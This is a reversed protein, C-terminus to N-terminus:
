LASRYPTYCSVVPELRTHFIHLVIQVTYRGPTYDIRHRLDSDTDSHHSHFKGPRRVPAIRGSYLTCCTSVLAAALRHDYTRRFHKGISSDPKGLHYGCRGYERGCEPSHDSVVDFMNRLIARRRASHMDSTDFTWSPYSDITPTDPHLLLQLVWALPIHSSCQQYERCPNDYPTM